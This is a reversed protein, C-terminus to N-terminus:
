SRAGLPAPRTPPHAGRPLAPGAAAFDGNVFLLPRDTDLLGFTEVRGVVLTHDGAPHAARVVCDFWATGDTLVPCGSAPGKTWADATFAAEGVPRAPDAFRRATPEQHDALVTVAFRGSRLVHGHARARHGIGVAVLLPDLSLTMFANATMGYPEGDALTTVVTVGTPFRGAARRFLAARDATAATPTM